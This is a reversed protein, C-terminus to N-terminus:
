SVTARAVQAVGGYYLCVIIKDSSFHNDPEYKESSRDRMPLQLSSPISKIQSGPPM